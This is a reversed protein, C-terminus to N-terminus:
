RSLSVSVLLSKKLAFFGSGGICMGEPDIAEHLYRMQQLFGDTANFTPVMLTADKLKRAEDVLAQSVYSLDIFCLTAYLAYASGWWLERKLGDHFLPELVVCDMTVISAAAVVLPALWISNLSEKFKKIESMNLRIAEMHGCVGSLSRTTRPQTCKRFSELQAHVYEVLVTGSSRLFLYTIADYLIVAITVFLALARLPLVWRPGVIDAVLVGMLFEISASYCAVMGSCALFARLASWRLTSSTLLSRRTSPVFGTAKEFAETHRFFVLLRKPGAWMAALNVSIRATIVGHVVLLMSRTLSRPIDELADLYLMVYVTDGVVYAVICAFAYCTYLGKWTVKAQALSKGSFNHIFFCGFLRCAIAYPISRQVMLSRM